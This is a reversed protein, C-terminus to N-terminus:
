RCKNSWKRLYLLLAKAKQIDEGLFGLAVNCRSCLLDRVVGTIHDHDVCLAAIKGTSTLFTEPKKCIACVGAQQLLKKDYAEVSIGFNIRLKYSRKALRVRDPYRDRYSAQQKRSRTRYKELNRERYEKYRLNCCSKCQKTRGERCEKQKSFDHLAKELKCISCRKVSRIENKNWELDSGVIM